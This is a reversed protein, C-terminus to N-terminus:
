SVFHGHGCRIVLVPHVTATFIASMAGTPSLGASVARTSGGPSRVTATTRCFMATAGAVTDHHRRADEGAAGSHGDPHEHVFKRHEHGDDLSAGTVYSPHRSRVDRPAGPALSPGCRTKRDSSRVASSAQPCDSVLEGFVYNVLNSDIVMDTGVFL